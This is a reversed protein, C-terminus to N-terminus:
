VREFREVPLVWIVAGGRQVEVPEQMLVPEGLFPLQRIPVFERRAHTLRKAIAIVADVQDDEVGSIITTSGHRLFGGRSGLKTVPHGAAVLEDTLVDVDDSDAVIVILKM